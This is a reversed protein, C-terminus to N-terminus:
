VKVPELEGALELQELPAVAVDVPERAALVASRLEVSAADVDDADLVVTTNGKADTVIAVATLTEITEVHIGGGVRKIEHAAHVRPFGRAKDIQARLAEADSQSLARKM